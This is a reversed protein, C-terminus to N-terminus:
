PPDIRTYGEEFAKAPSWSVYGDDYVVLYGGLLGAAPPTTASRELGSQFVRAEVPMQLVGYPPVTRGASSGLDVLCMAKEGNTPLTQIRLVRAARVVKHCKWEPLASFDTM